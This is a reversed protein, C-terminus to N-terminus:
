RDGRSEKGIMQRWWYWKINKSKEKLWILSGSQFVQKWRSKINSNLEVDIMVNTAINLQNNVDIYWLDYTM